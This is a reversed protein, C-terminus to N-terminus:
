VGIGVSLRTSAVPKGHDPVTAECSRFIWHRGAGKGGPGYKTEIDRYLAPEQKNVHEVFQLTNFNTHRLSQLLAAVTAQSLLSLPV